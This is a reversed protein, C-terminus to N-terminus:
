RSDNNSRFAVDVEGESHVDGVGEVVEESWWTGGMRLSSSLARSCAGKPRDGVRDATEESAQGSECEEARCEDKGEEAGEGRAGERCRKCTPSALSGPKTSREGDGEVREDWRSCEAVEKREVAM